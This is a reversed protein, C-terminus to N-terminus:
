RKLSANKGLTRVGRSKALGRGEALKHCTATRKKQPQGESDSQRDASDGLFFHGFFSSSQMGCLCFGFFGFLIRREQVRGRGRDPLLPTPSPPCYPPHMKHADDMNVNSQLGGKM